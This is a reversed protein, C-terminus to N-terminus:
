RRKRRPGFLTGFHLGADVVFRAPHPELLTIPMAGTTVYDARTLMAEAGVRLALRLRRIPTYGVGIGAQASSFLRLRAGTIPASSAADDSRRLVPDVGFRGFVEVDWKPGIGFRYGGELLIPHRRVEFVVPDRDIRNPFVVDYRLGVFVRATPMYSVGLGIANQWPLTDAFTNGAYVGSFWLRAWTVEPPPAPEPAPKPPPKPEEAPPEVPKPEPEVEKPDVEVMGRVEGGTPEALASATINAVGELAVAHADAAVPVRRRFLRESQGDWLLITYDGQEARLDIWIVTQAAFEGAVLRSRKDLGLLAFAERPYRVVQLSADDTGLHGHIAGVIQEDEDRDPLDPVVLAVNRSPAAETSQPAAALLM